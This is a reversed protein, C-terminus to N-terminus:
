HTPILILAENNRLSAQTVVPGLSGDAELVVYSGDLAHTTISRDDTVSGDPLMKALVLANDFRRALVRYTLSANYPDTGQAMVYHERTGSRGDFDVFGAPVAAPQGIDFEVAPNWAWVSLPATQGVGHNSMTEYLFWTNQNHVMYYLALLLIRGRDSGTGAGLPQDRGGLVRRAGGRTRRVISVVAGDYDREWTIVRNGGRTPISGGNYTLWVEGWGWPTTRQLNQPWPSDYELFYVHGYNPMVDVARNFIQHLRLAMEPYLTEFARAYPHNDDLPVGAYTETHGVFGEDFEPYYLPLDCMIGDIPGSAHPAGYFSGDILDAVMTAFFVRYSNLAVAPMFMMSVPGPVFPVRSEARAAATAPPDGPDPAPNWGPVLGAPYGPVVVTGSLDPRDVDERYHLYFDEPDYGWSRAWREAIDRGPEDPHRRALVYEFLRVDPNVARIGDVHGHLAGILLDYHGARWSVDGPDTYSGLLASALQIHHYLTGAVPQCGAPGCEQGDPCAFDDVCAGAVPGSDPGTQTGCACAWVCALAAAAVMAFRM